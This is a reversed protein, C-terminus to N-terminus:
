ARAHELWRLVKGFLADPNFPKALFDNMGAEICRAKDEGFANGTMAIIPTGQYGSMKRINRTAELGDMVPMQMDMLILAFDAKRAIAIAEAGDRAIDVLLGAAELQIQAVECNLPEDDVVLVRSHRYRAQIVGEADGGATAQTQAAGGGKKLRATFWFSSGVGPTSEVNAEGGMLEALRRTISLGLGTGGYRRTLSNDAQEFANFLRPVVDPEIGIGSDQVEFRVLVSDRTEEQKRIRL